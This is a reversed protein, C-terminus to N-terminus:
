DLSTNGLFTGTTSNSLTLLALLMVAIINELVDFVDLIYYLLSDLVKTSPHSWILEEIVPKFRLIVVWALRLIHNYPTMLAYRYRCRGLWYARQLKGNEHYLVAMSPHLLREPVLCVFSIVM